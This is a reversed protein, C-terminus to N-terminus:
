SSVESWISAMASTFASMSDSWGIVPQDETVDPETLGFHRHSGGEFRHHVSLLHGHETGGRDQRLLMVLREGFPQRGVPDLHRHEGAKEGRAPRLTTEPIADPSTSTTTPVWRRSDRSTLKWSRPNSTTSSSCRNPTAAM